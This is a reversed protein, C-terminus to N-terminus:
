LNTIFDKHSINSTVWLDWEAIEGSGLLGTVRALMARYVALASTEGIEDALRSKVHGLLPERAFVAIRPRLQSNSTAQETM